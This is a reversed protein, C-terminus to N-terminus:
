EFYKRHFKGNFIKQNFKRSLKEGENLDFRITEFINAYFIKWGEVEIFFIAWLDFCYFNKGGEVFFFRNM